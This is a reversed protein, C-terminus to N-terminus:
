CYYRLTILCYYVFYALRNLLPPNLASFKTAVDGSPGGGRGEGRRGEERGGTGEGGREKGERGQGEGGM